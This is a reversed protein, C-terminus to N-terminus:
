FNSTMAESHLCVFREDLVLRIILVGAYEFMGGGIGDSRRSLGYFGREGDAGDLCM